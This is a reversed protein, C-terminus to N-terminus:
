SELELLIEELQRARRDWTEESVSVQRSQRKQVSEQNIIAQGVLRVFEEENEAVEVYPEYKRAEPIDICITPLGTALCEKLKLPSSQAIMEDQVYPMLLVDLGAIWKPLLDYPQRGVFHVNPLDSFSQPCYDVPGIMVISAHTNEQAIRQLMNFNIKEYVLGFFGIRPQPLGDIEKLPVTDSSSAFHDYDVAHPFYRTNYQQNRKVLQDSVALVLESKKQLDKEASLLSERDAEPWHSYDDTCYYIMSKEQIDGLLWSVHPLTTLVVPETIGSRRMARKVYYTVLSRNLRRAFVNGIWPLMPCDLVWMNESSKRLSKSWNKIKEVGRFFTFANAKPARTGITNVWLVKYQSKLRQILHQCSSPHRGWDDAFIVLCKTRKNSDMKAPAEVLSVTM